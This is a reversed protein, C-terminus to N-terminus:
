RASQRRLLYTPLILGPDTGVPAKKIDPLEYINGSALDVYAYDKRISMLSSLDIEMNALMLLGTQRVVLVPTSEREYKVYAIRRGAIHKEGKELKHVDGDFFTYARGWVDHDFRVNDVSWDRSASGVPEGTEFKGLCRVAPTKIVPDPERLFQSLAAAFGRGFERATDVTVPAFPGNVSEATHAFPIEWTTALRTEFNALVWQPFTQGARMYGTCNWPTNWAVDNKPLYKLGLCNEYVIQAMRRQRVENKGPALLIQHMLPNNYHPCHIDLAVDIRGKWENRIWDRLAGTSPYIWNCYDRAPDHPFRNKGQDGDVVGDLDVFPVLLVEVNERFWRGTETDALIEDVLGEHMYSAINEAAHHRATTVIRFRGRGDIRGLRAFPVSRGKKTQCLTGVRFHGADDAHRAVLANWERLGHPLCMAFWVEKEGKGFTYTFESPTFPEKETYSWTAGCDTSGVAGRNSVYERWGTLPDPRFKFKLTRGEAGRVRFAWWFWWGVTDRVENHLEVTDGKIGAVFINGQPIRNDVILGAAGRRVLASAKAGVRITGDPLSFDVDIKGDMLKWSVSIRGKPTDLWGSASTVGPIPQPDIRVKDCGVADDCISIGLVHRILWEDVSGFMPHCNSSVSQCKEASWQQWLTTAGCDLMNFWGPFGDHMVVRAALAADGHLPLYELMYKTAFIGTTLADGNVRVDKKLLEYAAPVDGPEILGHYLAFLQEGQLGSGVRGGEHVYDARFKAAIRGALETLREADATKGLIRAFKVTLAVFQHWHALSTLKWYHKEGAVAVHDGLCEPIDNSPYRKAVLDIYRVLAPYALRASDLDGDYRVLSDVLVPVGVAWGISGARTGGEAIISNPTQGAAPYVSKSAIGVYPATETFLGDDEAENLFDHLTKRYFEAMDYNLWFADATCAIDGGYGFKERGPCDSQVSQLNARFTRRCVEHLKNLKENSCTFHSREKVDASWACMEFDESRPAACPGEVQVYRFVHFTFRPEFVFEPSGDGIVSDRQEAIAFLPGKKPDKIQGAVSTMVNVTGDPWVREGQRFRVKEGKPVGRLRAKLTGTANVGMDVLWVNNSLQTVSKATWKDYIVVKPFAGSPVVKGQPGKVVRAKQTFDMSLRRDEVVGLYISNHVVQGRAARWSGDTMVTERVGDAYAIELTAKVCPTGIALHDRLNYRDVYWVNGLEVRLLNDAGKRVQATVDFSEELVRKRYPTFPPLATPSVREGNVFLDRMGPAAVRWVASSIEVDRTRFEREVVDNRAPAFFAETDSEAPPVYSGAIWEAALSAFSVACSIMVALANKAENNDM